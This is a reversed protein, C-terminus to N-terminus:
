RQYFPDREGALYRVFDIVDILLSGSNTVIALMSWVDFPATGGWRVRMAWWPLVVFWTFHGTGLARVFGSTRYLWAM